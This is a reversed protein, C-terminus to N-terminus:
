NNKLGQYKLWQEKDLLIFQLETEALVLSDYDKAAKIEEMIELIQKITDNGPYNDIEM